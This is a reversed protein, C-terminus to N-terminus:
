GASSALWGIISALRHNVASPTYQMVVVVSSLTQLSGAYNEPVVTIGAPGILNCSDFLKWCVHSSSSSIAPGDFEILPGAWPGPACILTLVVHHSCNSSAGLHWFVTCLRWVRELWQMEIPQRVYHGSLFLLRSLCSVFSKLHSSCSLFLELRCGPCKGGKTQCFLRRNRCCPIYFTPFYNNLHFETARTVHGWFGWWM